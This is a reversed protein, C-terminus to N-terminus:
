FFLTRLTVTGKIKDWQEDNNDEFFGQAIGALMDAFQVQKIDSSDSHRTALIANSNKDFWLKTQLYDHLSNGSAVRVSREDPFFNVQRHQSMEQLLSLGIMYNYLKNPDRRIHNQVNQKKVVIAFYKVLNGQQRFLNLAEEAFYTRQINDMDSWKKEVEPPWNFKKYMKRILRKPLHRVTDDICLSAITLYRSSGGNRYPQDFKWGLDGSEDTYVFM